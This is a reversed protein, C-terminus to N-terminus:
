GNDTTRLWDHCSEFRNHDLFALGALLDPKSIEIFVIEHVAVDGDMDFPRREVVLISKRDGALRRDHTAKRHNGSDIECSCDFRRAMGGPLSAIPHDEIAPPTPLRMEAAKALLCADFSVPEHANGGAHACALGHRDPGGAIGGHERHHRELMM